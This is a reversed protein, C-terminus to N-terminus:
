AQLPLVLTHKSCACLYKRVGEQAVIVLIVQKVNHDGETKVASAGDGHEFLVDLGVKGAVRINGRLGVERAQHFSALWAFACVFIHIGRWLILSPWWHWVVTGLLICRSTSYPGQQQIYCWRQAVDSVNKLIFDCKALDSTQSNSLCMGPESSSQHHTVIQSPIHHNHAPM